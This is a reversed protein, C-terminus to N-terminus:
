FIIKGRGNTVGYIPATYEPPAPEPQKSLEVLTLLSELLAKMADHAQRWERINDERFFLERNQFDWMASTCTEGLDRLMGTITNETVPHTM